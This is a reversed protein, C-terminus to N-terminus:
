ILPIVIRIRDKAKKIIIYEDVNIINLIRNIMEKFNIDEFNRDKNIFADIELCPIIKNLQDEITIHDSIKGIYYGQDYTERLYRPMSFWLSKFVETAMLRTNGISREWVSSEIFNSNTSLQKIYYYNFGNLDMEEIKDNRLNTIIMSCGIKVEHKIFIVDLLDVSYDIVDHIDKLDISEILSGWSPMIKTVFKYVSQYSGEGYFSDVLKQNTFDDMLKLLFHHFKYHKDSRIILEKKELIESIQFNLIILNIKLEQYYRYMMDITLEDDISVPPGPRYGDSEGYSFNIWGPCVKFEGISKIKSVIKLLKSHLNTFIYKDLLKVPNITVKIDKGSISCKISIDFEDELDNFYELIEHNIDRSEFEKYNEITLRSSSEFVSYSKISKM